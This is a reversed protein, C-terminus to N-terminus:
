NCSISTGDVFASADGNDNNIDWYLACEIGTDAAYFALQSERGTTSIFAQRTALSAMSMAIILLVGMIVIAIFLTFGKNNM